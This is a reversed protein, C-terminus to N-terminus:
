ALPDALVWRGQGLAKALYMARDAAAIVDEASGRGTADAIGICATVSGTVEALRFPSSLRDMIRESVATAESMDAVGTCLVVFEDGGLRAVLDSARAAHRLREAVAALLLDGTRHGHRDNVDKFGDLDVFLVAVGARRADDALEDRLVELLGSRNALGTLSDHRARHALTRESRQLADKSEAAAIMAASTAALMEMLPILAPIGPRPQEDVLVLVGERRGNAMLALVVLSGV